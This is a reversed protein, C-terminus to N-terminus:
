DIEVPTDSKDTIRWIDDYISKYSVTYNFTPDKLLTDMLQLFATYDEQTGGMKIITRFEGNPPIATGKDLTSSSILNLTDMAPFSRDLFEKFDEEFKKNQYQVDVGEIIAPGVGYNIIDIQFTYDLSNNSTELVLYPMASLRSQKDMINTQRVFIILTTLSILLASLGVLKDSTWFKKAM